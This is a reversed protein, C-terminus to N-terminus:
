YNATKWKSTVYIVSSNGEPKRDLETAIAEDVAIRVTAGVRTLRLEDGPKALKVRLYRTMGTLRFEDKGRLGLRRGNYYIFTFEFHEGLIQDYVEIGARPNLVTGDLRPFFDLIAPDKPILIGAQHTGNVGIDTASLVKSISNM